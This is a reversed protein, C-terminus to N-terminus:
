ISICTPPFVRFTPMFSGAATLGGTTTVRLVPKHIHEYDCTEYSEDWDPTIEEVDGKCRIVLVFHEEATRCHEIADVVDNETLPMSFPVYSTDRALEVEDSVPDGFCAFDGIDWPYQGTFEYARIYGEMFSAEQGPRRGGGEVSASVVTESAPIKSLDFALFVRHVSYLDDGWPRNESRLFRQGLYLEEETDTGTTLATEFDEADGYMEDYAIPNLSYVSM